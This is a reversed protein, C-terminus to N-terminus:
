DYGYKFFFNCFPSWGKQFVDWCNLPYIIIEKCITCQNALSTLFKHDPVRTRVDSSPYGIEYHIKLYLIYGKFTTKLM